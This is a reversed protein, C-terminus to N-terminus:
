PAPTKDILNAFRRARRAISGPQKTPDLIASIICVLSVPMAELVDSLNEDNIGGIVAVARGAAVIRAAMSKAAALTVPPDADRKTSTSFVPSIAIYDVPLALARDLQDSTSVSLGVIARPGLRRRVEEVSTDSQGVHIGDAGIAAAVELRDNVIFPVELWRCLTQCRGAVVRFEGDSMAKDRMQVIAAGGRILERVQEEHSEPCLHADTIGYLGRRPMPM